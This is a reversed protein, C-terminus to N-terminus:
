VFVDPVSKLTGLDILDFSTVFWPQPGDVGYRQFLREAFCDLEGITHDYAVSTPDALVEDRIAAYDTLFDRWTQWSTQSRDRETSPPRWGCAFALVEWTNYASLANRQQVLHRTKRTRKTPM